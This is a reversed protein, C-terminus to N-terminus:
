PSWRISLNIDTVSHRDWRRFIYKGISYIPGTNGGNGAICTFSVRKFLLPDSMWWLVLEIDSRYESIFEGFWISFRRTVTAQSWVNILHQRAEAARPQVSRIAQLLDTAEWPECSPFTPDRKNHVHGSVSLDGSLKVKAIDGVTAYLDKPM